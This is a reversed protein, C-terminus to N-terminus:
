REEVIMSRNNPFIRNKAAISNQGHTRSRKKAPLLLTKENSNSAKRCSSEYRSSFFLTDLSRHYGYFLSVCFKCRYLSRESGAPIEGRRAMSTRNAAAM